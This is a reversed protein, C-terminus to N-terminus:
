EINELTKAKERDEYKRKRSPTLINQITQVITPVEAMAGVGTDGCMLVKSVPDETHYGLEKEVIDLHKRTFPHNWMHTNMAPCVLVPKQVDWARMICTLLNDCIGGALKALTNADLPAIVMLDAWSRLDIHLVPDGRKQWMEWEEVDTLVDVDELEKPDFFHLAHTTAVVKISVAPLAAQLQKVLPPIKISAVDPKDFEPAYNEVGYWYTQEHLAWYGRRIRAYTRPDSADVRTQTQLTFAADKPDSLIVDNGVVLEMAVDYSRMANVKMRMWGRIEEYANVALPERLLFRVQQWHTKDVNPATSLVYGELDIDFWGAIGHMLGTYMCTLSIPITIDQLEPISITKFDVFHKCAPAMLLRQDFTGVIPQSFIEAKAEGALPSFDVGFFNNQEWFRVKAMTQSWLNSDSFPALYITGSNPLMAGGPKLFHDRAHLYSEIMREHVLLVGIPESILTDVKPVDKVEEVKSQIVEVKNHMWSNKAMTVSLMKRIKTAMGSAEVAYVKSAGAQVAFYSLIGSGAGVDMVLKDKMHAPGNGIIANHYISTRVNDQLM